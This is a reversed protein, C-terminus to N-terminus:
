IITFFPYCCLCTVEKCPAFILAAFTFLKRAIVSPHILFLIVPVPPPILFLHQTELLFLHLNTWLIFYCNWLTILPLIFKLM